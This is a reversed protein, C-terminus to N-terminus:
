KFGSSDPNLGGGFYSQTFGSEIRIRFIPAITRVRDPDISGFEIRIAASTRVCSLKFLFMKKISCFLLSARGYLISLFSYPYTIQPSRHVEKCGYGSAVGNIGGM